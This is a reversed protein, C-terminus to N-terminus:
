FRSFQISTWKCIYNFLSLILQIFVPLFNSSSYWVEMEAKLLIDTDCLYYKTSYISDEFVSSVLLSYNSKSVHEIMCVLISNLTSPSIIFTFIAKHDSGILIDICTILDIYTISILCIM